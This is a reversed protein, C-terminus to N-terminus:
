TSVSSPSPRAPRTPPTKTNSPLSLNRSHMGKRAASQVTPTYESWQELETPGLARPPDVVESRRSHVPLSRASGASENRLHRISHSLAGAGASATWALQQTRPSLRTEDRMAPTVKDPAVPSYNAPMLSKNAVIASSSSHGGAHTASPFQVGEEALSDLTPSRLQTALGYTAPPEILASAMNHTHSPSLPPVRPPRFTRAFTSTQTPRETEFPVPTRQRHDSSLSPAPRPQKTTSTPGTNQPLLSHL